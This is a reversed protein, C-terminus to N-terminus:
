PCRPDSSKECQADADGAAETVVAYTTASAIATILVIIPVAMWGPGSVPVSVVAWYLAAFVATFVFAAHLATWALPVVIDWDV